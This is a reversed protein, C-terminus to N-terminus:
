TGGMGETKDITEEVSRAEYVWSAGNKKQGETSRSWARPAAAAHARRGQRKPARRFGSALWMCRVRDIRTGRRAARWRGELM